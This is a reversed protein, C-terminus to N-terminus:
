PMASAAASAAVDAVTAADTMMTIPDVMVIM